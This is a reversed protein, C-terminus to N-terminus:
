CARRSGSGTNSTATLSVSPVVKDHRSAPYNYWAWIGLPAQSFLGNDISDENENIFIFTRSSGSKQIDAWKTAIFPVWAEDGNIWGCISYSRYRLTQLGSIKSTDSPCHYIDISKDYPFLCGKQINVPTLDTKANGEIWSNLTSSMPTAHNFAFLGLNDDAYMVWCMQLQHLNNLCAIRHAKAKARALAPLLIAALIAIIAIVVLLEILTFGSRRLHTHPEDKLSKV